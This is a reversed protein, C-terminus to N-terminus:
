RESPPPNDPHQVYTWKRGDYFALDNVGFSWLVGDRADLRYGDIEPSLGTDVPELGGDRYLFLREESAVYVEGQFVELGWLDEGQRSLVKFGEQHNGRLLTGGDGCIYVEEASVCRVRELNARTPSKLEECREGNWHVICGNLGVAYLDTESVGDLANFDLERESLGKEIPLWRRPGRQYIQGHYGCAFLSGSISRIFTTAGIGEYSGASPIQEYTFGATAAICVQGQSSLACLAVPDAKWCCVSEVDWDLDHKSWKGDRYFSMRSFDHDEPDLSHLKSAIYVYGKRVVCGDVFFVSAVDDIEEAM